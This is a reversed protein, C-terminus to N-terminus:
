HGRLATSHATGPVPRRLGTVVAQKPVAAPAIAPAPKPAMRDSLGLLIGFFSLIFQQYDVFDFRLFEIKIQDVLFVAMLLPGLRVLGKVYESEYTRKRAAWLHWGIRLLFGLVAVFGFVGVTVLLFLYLNHPFGTARVAPTTLPVERDFGVGPGYGVWPSEKIGAWTEPWVGSRTKPVGGKLEMTSTLRNFMNGFKTYAVVGTSVVAGCVLATMFIRMARVTGIEKRFLYLFAPFALMLVIFGGRNATGLLYVLNLAALAYLYLRGKRKVVFAEYALLIIMLAFYEACIGPAGGFPGVLRPDDEGRNAQMRLVDIGLFRPRTGPDAVLQIACYIAVLVNIAILVDVVHSPKTVDRAFNYALIFMVLGSVFSFLYVGNQVYVVPDVQSISVLYAVIIAVLSGMMPVHLARDQIVFAAALAYTAFVSASGYRTEVAQFPVALLLIAIAIRRPVSAAAALLIAAGLAAVALEM